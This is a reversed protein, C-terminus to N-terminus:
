KKEGSRELYANERPDVRVRDGVQIFPPVSIRVGNELVAPKHSNSQTAGRLQPETESVTAEAAAPLEVGQPEGEVIQLTCSVGESLWRATEPEIRDRAVFLQEFTKSETFVHHQADSYSYEAERIEIYPQEFSDDSMLKEEITAGTRLNRLKTRYFGRKNGPTFHVLDLVMHLDGRFIIIHGRRLQTTNVM